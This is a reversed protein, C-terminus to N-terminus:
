WNAEGLAGSLCHVPRNVMAVLEPWVAAASLAICGPVSSCIAQPVPESLLGDPATGGGAYRLLPLVVEGEVLEVEAAEEELKIGPVEVTAVAGGVLTPGETLEGEPKVVTTTVVLTGVVVAGALVDVLPAV